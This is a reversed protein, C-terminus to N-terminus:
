KTGILQCGINFIVHIEYGTPQLISQFRATFNETAGVGITRDASGVWNGETPIDTPPEPDSKNWIDAGNLILRDLKQSTPTKIWDAFFGDITIASGSNNTIDM